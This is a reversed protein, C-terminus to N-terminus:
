NEANLRCFICRGCWVTKGVVCAVRKGSQTTGGAPQGIKHCYSPSVFFAYMVLSYLGLSKSVKLRFEMKDKVYGDKANESQWRGHRKFLRDSIGANAAATAGGARLSHLGFDSPPLGLVTLKKHFSERLCNYSIKGSQRLKEGSKTKQIPRFLCLQDQWCMGTRKMYRELIAVPCTFNGTRVIVLEDGQRLQDTKSQEIRIKMMEQSVEFDCPRLCILESFRLFGSFGLLCATALRLDALSGSKDADRVIAELMDVTVPEKKVVPKALSRQLGELTAKVFLDALPPCLGASNHVWSVANSAEEVVAKSKTKEGLYQLYLAFHHPKALIAQLTKASAWIKWRRFARLYKSVTSDARSKSITAPLKSALAKLEPDELEELLRWSGQARVETPLVCVCLAWGVLM